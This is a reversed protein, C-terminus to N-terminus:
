WAGLDGPELSPPSSSSRINNSGASRICFDVAASCTDSSTMFGWEDSFGGLEVASGGASIRGEEVCRRTRGLCDEGKLLPCRMATGSAIPFSIFPIGKGGICGAECGPGPYEVVIGM